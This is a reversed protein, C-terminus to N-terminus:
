GRGSHSAEEMEAWELQFRIVRIDQENTVHKILLPEPLEQQRKATRQDRLNSIRPRFNGNIWRSMDAHSDGAYYAKGTRKGKVVWM